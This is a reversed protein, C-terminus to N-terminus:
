YRKMGNNLVVVVQMQLNCHPNKKKNRIVKMTLNTHDGTEKQDYNALWNMLQENWSILEHPIEKTVTQLRTDNHAQKLIAKTSASSKGISKIYVYRYKNLKRLSLISYSKDGKLFPIDCSM